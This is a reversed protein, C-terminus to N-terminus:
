GEVKETLSSHEPERLGQGSGGYIHERDEWFTKIYYLDNLILSVACSLKTRFAKVQFTASRDKNPYTLAVLWMGAPLVSDM